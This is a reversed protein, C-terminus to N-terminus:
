KFLGNIQSGTFGRYQLFRVQRSKDKIDRPVASGFRKIREKAALEFWYSDQGHADMAADILEAAVGKEKLELLIRVPGKGQRARMAIFAECFREDSQLSEKTLRDVVESVLDSDDFRLVLKHQLEKASHERMALFNMASFRITAHTIPEASM